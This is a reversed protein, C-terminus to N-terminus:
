RPSPSGLREASYLSAEVLARGTRRLAVMCSAGLRALASAPPAELRLRTPRDAEILVHGADPIVFREGSMLWKDQSHGEVTLWAQGHELVVTWGAAAALGMMGGTQLDWGSRAIRDQM